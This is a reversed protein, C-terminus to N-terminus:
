DSLREFNNANDAFLKLIEPPTDEWALPTAVRLYSGDEFRVHLADIQDDADKTAIIKIDNNYEAIHNVIPVYMSAMCEYATYGPM